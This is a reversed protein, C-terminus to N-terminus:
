MDDSERSIRRNLVGIMISTEEIQVPLSDVSFTKSISLAPRWSSNLLSKWARILGWFFIGIMFATSYIPATQEFTVYLRLFGLFGLVTALAYLLVWWKMRGQKKRLEEKRRIARTLEGETNKTVLLEKYRKTKEFPEDKAPHIGLPTFLLLFAIGLLLCGCLLKRRFGEMMAAKDVERVVVQCMAKKELDPVQDPEVPLVESWVAKAIVTIKEGKGAKWKELEGLTESMQPFEVQISADGHVFAVRQYSNAAYIFMGNVAPHGSGNMLLEDFTLEVYQGPKIKSLDGSDMNKINRFMRHEILASLLIFVGSFAIVFPIWLHKSVYYKKM